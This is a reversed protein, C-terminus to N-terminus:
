DAGFEWVQNGEECMNSLFVCFLIIPPSKKNIMGRSENSSKMLDKQVKTFSELGFLLKFGQGVLERNLDLCIM